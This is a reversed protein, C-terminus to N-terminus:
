CTPHPGNVESGLEKKFVKEMEDRAKKAKTMLELLEKEEEYTMDGPKVKYAQQLNNVVNEAHQLAKNFIEEKSYKKMEEKDM